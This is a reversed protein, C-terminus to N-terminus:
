AVTWMQNPAGAVLPSQILGVGSLRSANAVDLVFGTSNVIVYLGPTTQALLTWNQYSGSGCVDQVV